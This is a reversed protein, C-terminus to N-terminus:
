WSATASMCRRGASHVALEAKNEDAFRGALTLTETDFAGAESRFGFTRVSAEPRMQRLLDLLLTAQLPGHVVLGPYGEEDICYRRDYHIRHGNLTLASYRFLLVPDPVVARRFEYTGQDGQSAAPAERVPEKEGPAAGRYVIDQEEEVALGRETSIRHEVTVFCLPGSRGEVNRIAKITSRREVRDGARLPGHFRLRGGAWMRRPLEVPPLFGGRAPHGDKGLESQRAIAPCLLWHVGRVAPEGAGANSPHDLLAEFAALTTESLVDARQETRGIWDSYPGTARDNLGSRSKEDM